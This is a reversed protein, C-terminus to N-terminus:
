DNTEDQSRIGLRQTLEALQVKVEAARQATLREMLDADDPNFVVGQREAIKMLNRQQLEEDALREEETPPIPPLGQNHRELNRNVRALRASFQSQELSRQQLEIQNMTHGVHVNVGAATGGHQDSISTLVQRKRIHEM